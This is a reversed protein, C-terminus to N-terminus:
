AFLENIFELFNDSISTFEIVYNLKKDFVSANTVYMPEEYVTNFLVEIDNISTSTYTEEDIQELIVTNDYFSLNAFYGSDDSITIKGGKTEGDKTKMLFYREVNFLSFDAPVINVKNLEDYFIEETIQSSILDKANLFRPSNNGNNLLTVPLIICLAVTMFAASLAPLFIKLNFRKKRTSEEAIKTQLIEWRENFDGSDIKDASIKIQEEIDINKM